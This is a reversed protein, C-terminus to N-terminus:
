KIDFKVMTLFEDIDLCTYDDSKIAKKWYKVKVSEEQPVSLNFVPEEGELETLAQGCIVNLMEKVSDIGYINAKEDDPSVGLVNSAIVPCMNEVILLEIYGEKDGSFSMSVKLINDSPPECDSCDIPDGFMFAMQEFVSCVVNNLLEDYNAM